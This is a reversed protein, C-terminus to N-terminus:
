PSLQYTCSKGVSDTTQLLGAEPLEPPPSAGGSIFHFNGADIRTPMLEDMAAHGAALDASLYSFRHRM